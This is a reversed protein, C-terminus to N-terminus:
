PAPKFDFDQQALTLVPRGNMLPPDFQWQEVATVALASLEENAEITAPDVSPLRVRGERDIYFEVSVHGGRSSKALKEPYVPKVIKVPTPTRDLQSLTCASYANSNPAIKYHFLEPGTLASMDVLVVGSAEFNFRIDATASRPNGHIRAPHYRWHKISTEAAEAFRPHSYVTVLHDTLNGDADIQIAIRVTGSRLGDTLAEQPFVPEDTQDIKLPEYAPTAFQAVLAPTALAALASLLSLRPLKMPFPANGPM